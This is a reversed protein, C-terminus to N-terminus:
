IALNIDVWYVADQHRKWASHLYRARRPVSFDIHEPDKHSEDRPDTPLCFLIADQIDMFLESFYLQEQIMLLSSSDKKKSRRRSGFMSEM